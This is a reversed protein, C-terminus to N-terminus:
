SNSLFSYTNSLKKKENKKQRVRTFTSSFFRTSKTERARFVVSGIPPFEFGHVKWVIFGFFISSANM